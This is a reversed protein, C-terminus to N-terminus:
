SGPKPPNTAVTGTGTDSQSMSVYDRLINLTELLHIDTGPDEPSDDLGSTDAPVQTPNTDAPVFGPGSIQKLPQKAEVMDVDLAFVKDESPKRLKREESIVASRASLRDLETRRTTEDLSVSKNANRAKLLDIQEMLYGFDKNEHVRAESRQELFPVTTDPLDIKTFHTPPIQDGPLANPLSGEGLNDSYDLLSPLVIEPKVGNLQTSTGGIRYFKQVTIKLQGPDWKTDGSMYDKLHYITQVTGKGHTTKDGVLIARGYDQLAAAVIEAASASLRSTMVLLPGTYVQHKGQIFYPNVRGQADKIQVVPGEKLFLAAFQIAQDLLGGGNRRMDVILGQVGEENMRTILKASDSAASYNSDRNDYFGPELILVGLRETKGGPVEKEFIRAKARQDELRIEHRVITVEKRFASDTADAPKVTLTVKTGSPGRILDVIKNLRMDVVNVEEGQEQKVAMVHDHPKLDHTLDAPGGPVLSVVEAAGDDSQTLVAGIGTLSLKISQIEFNKAEEPPFYTTHPDYAYTLSSLYLEMIDVMEEAQAEKLRRTFKKSLNELVQEPHFPKSRSKIDDELRKLVDEDEKLKAEEIAVVSKDASAPTKLSALKKQELQVAKQKDPLQKKDVVLQSQNVYDSLRAELIEFKLRRRWLDEAEARDKPWPLKRRDTEFTEDVTFDQKALLQHQIYPEMESVRQLFRDHIATAPSVDGDKTMRSLVALYRTDFEKIDSDLFFMHSPDLVDYYNNLFIKSISEDFPKRTVHAKELFESVMRAVEGAQYGDAAEGSAIPQGQIGGLCALSALVFLLVFRKLGTLLFFTPLQRSRIKAFLSLSYHSATVEPHSLRM